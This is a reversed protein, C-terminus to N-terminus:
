LWISIDYAKGYPENFYREYLRVTEMFNKEAQKEDKKNAHLTPYHHFIKGYIKECDEMYKKTHLIHEHWASDIIRTPVLLFDPYLYHLILFNKYKRVSEKAKHSEWNLQKALRKEIYELDLALITEIM